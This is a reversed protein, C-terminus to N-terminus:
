ILKKIYDKIFSLEEPTADGVDKSKFSPFYLNFSRNLERELTNKAKIGAEDNDYLCVISTVGLRELYSKQEQTLSVGFTAIGHHINNDELKLVDGPGEVLIALKDQKIYPKAFWYNFLFNGKNFGPPSNVWKEYIKNTKQPCQALRDHYKSCKSCKEYQSRSTFGVAFKYDNDYIPIYIRGTKKHVGIDYKSLINATYHRKLYYDAPIILSKRIDQRAWREKVVSGRKIKFIKDFRSHDLYNPNTSTNVLGVFNMVWDMAQQYTTDPKTKILLAQVLGYINKPYKKHCQHTNCVWTCPVDNDSDPYLNFATTNDGNHIPCKGLILNGSYRYEVNFHTLIEDIYQSALYSGKASVELSYKLNSKQLKAM